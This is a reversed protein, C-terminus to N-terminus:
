FKGLAADLGLDVDPHYIDTNWSDPYVSSPYCNGGKRMADISGDCLKVNDSTVTTYDVPVLTQMPVDKGDLADVALKLALAGQFTAFGVSISRLGLAEKCTGPPLMMLRQLNPSEGAIPILKNAPRGDELQMQTIADAGYQTIIGDIDDWPHTVLIEKMRARAGANTWEGNATAIVKIGPYNKLVMDAGDEVETNFLTGPIGTIRVLNGKGGMAKALWEMRKKGGEVFQSAIVHAYPHKQDTDLLYVIVKEDVAAKIAQDLATADVPYVIIANAGAMVMAKIQQIQKQADEGSVQVEFDVRDKYRPSKALAEMMNKCITQWENGVISMSYFIKYKGKPKAAEGKGGAFLSSVVLCLACIVIIAKKM